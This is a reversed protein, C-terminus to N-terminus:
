AWSALPPLSMLIADINGGTKLGFLTGRDYVLNFEAYRGRWELQTLKDEPMFESEMRRRVLEPFIDLFAEGVDKTFAFNRAFAVEDEAVSVGGAVVRREGVEEGREVPDTLAVVDEGDGGGVIGLREVRRRLPRAAEVHDDGERHGVGRRPRLDEAPVEGREAQRDVEVGHGFVELPGRARVDALHNAARDELVARVRELFAEGVASPRVSRSTRELLRTGVREELREVRRSLAPPSLHLEHAAQRFSRLDAVTVFARLQDLDFGNSKM